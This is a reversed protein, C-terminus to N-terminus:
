GLEITDSGEHKQHKQHKKTAVVYRNVNLYEEEMTINTSKTCKTSKPAKKQNEPGRGGRGGEKCCLCGSHSLVSCTPSDNRTVFRISCLKLVGM